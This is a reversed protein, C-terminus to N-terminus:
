ANKTLMQLRLARRSYALMGMSLAVTIIEAVPASLWVGNLQWFLPLVFVAIIVLLQRLISIFLSKRGQATSQFYATSLVSFCLAPLAIMQLRLGNACVAMTPSSPDLFLSAFLEPFLELLVFMSVTFISGLGIGTWLTKWVRGSQRMGHNYGMIPGVGQLLGLVPMLVLTFLSNIAGYSTIAADGGHYALASNTFSASIGTGLNIVFSSAGIICIQRVRSLRLKLNEVKLRLIGHKKVFFYQFLIAFGVLQGIFTAIAAGEVGMNLPGIFVYDLVINTLASAIQSIMAFIPKGESRVIAAMTFSALQLVFFPILIRMYSLAYPLNAETAGSLGLLQPLFVFGIVSMVVSSLLILTATNGFFENAEDLNQEGLKISILIAGGIAFLTGVAFAVMMLPFAVTLGGLADEGVFHGVFIRDVINYIANVVMAFITPLSFKIVLKLIPATGLQKTHDVQKAEVQM